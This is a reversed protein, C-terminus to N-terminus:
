AAYVGVNYETINKLLKVSGYKVLFYVVNLYM